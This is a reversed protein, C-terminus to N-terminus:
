RIKKDQSHFPERQQDGFPHILSQVELKMPMTFPGSQGVKHEGIVQMEETPIRGATCLNKMLSQQIKERNRPERWINGLATRNYSSCTLLIRMHYLTGKSERSTGMLYKPTGRIEVLNVAASQRGNTSQM